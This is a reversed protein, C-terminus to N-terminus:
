VHFINQELAFKIEHATKAVGSYVIKNAPVGAMLARRLEGESVVDAGAGLDALTKIIAQNSNAKIAYCILSDLKEINVVYDQYAKQITSQSYCYFPTDVVEAIQKISLDEVNLQNNKYNYPNM